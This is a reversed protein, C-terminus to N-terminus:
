EQHAREWDDATRGTKSAFVEEINEVIYYSRNEEPEYWPSDPNDDYGWTKAVIGFPWRDALEFDNWTLSPPECVAYCDYTLTRPYKAIFDLFDHKNVKKWKREVTYYWNEPPMM